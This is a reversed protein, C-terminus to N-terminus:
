CRATRSSAFLPSLRQAMLRRRFRPGSTATRFLSARSRSTTRASRTLSRAQSSSLRPAGLAPRQRSMGSRAARQYKLRPSQLSSWTASSAASAKSVPVHAALRKTTATCHTSPSKGLESLFEDFNTSKSLKYRGTFVDTMNGLKTRAFSTSSYLSISVPSFTTNLADPKVCNPKQLRSAHGM